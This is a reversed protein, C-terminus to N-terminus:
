FWSRSGHSFINSFWAWLWEFIKTLELVPGLVALFSSHTRSGSESGDFSIVIDSFRVRFQLFIYILELVPVPVTLFISM